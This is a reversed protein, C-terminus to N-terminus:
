EVRIGGHQYGSQKYPVVDDADGHSDSFILIKM